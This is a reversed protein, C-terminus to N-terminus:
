IRAQDRREERGKGRTEQSKVEETKNKEGEMVEKKGRQNLVKTSEKKM